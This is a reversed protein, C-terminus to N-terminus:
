SSAASRALPYNESRYLDRIADGQYRTEECEIVTDTIQDPPTREIAHRVAEAVTDFRLYHLAVRAGRSRRGPYFDAPNSFDIAVM